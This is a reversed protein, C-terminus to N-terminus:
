AARLGTISGASTTDGIDHNNIDCRMIGRVGTQNTDFYRESSTAFMMEQGVGLYSGLSFDALLCMMDGTTWGSVGSKMVQSTVIPIGSYTDLTGLATEAKTVGGAAMQLRGFVTEKFYRHCVFVPNGFAAYEPLTGILTGLIASTVTANTSVGSAVNGVLSTSAELAFRAGLIGGNAAEAQGIFGATDLRKSFRRGFEKALFEAIAIPSANLLENNVKCLTGLRKAKLGVNGFTSDTETVAGGEASFSAMDDSTIKPWLAEDALPVKNALKEFTGYQERREIIANSLEVPLLAGGASNPTTGLARMEPYYENIKRRADMVSQSDALQTVRGFVNAICWLGSRYAAEDANPGKFSEYTGPHARPIEIRKAPTVYSGDESDQAPTKRANPAKLRNYDADIDSQLKETARIREIRDLIENASKRLSTIEVEQADSLCGDADTQSAVEAARKFKYNAEDKMAILDPKPM